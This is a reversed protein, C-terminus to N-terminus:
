RSGRSTCGIGCGSGCDGQAPPAASRSIFIFSFEGPNLEVFDLQTDQLLPLSPTAIVVTVGDAQLSPLEGDGAEDFGMGYTISGDAERRAAVRLALECMGGDTAAKRVQEAAATTLMFM